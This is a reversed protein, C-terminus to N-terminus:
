KPDGLGNLQKVAGAHNPQKKLLKKYSQRADEKDGSLELSYALNFLADNYDPNLNLSKQFCKIAEQYDGYYVLNLYGLNYWANANEAKSIIQLYNKEALEIRDTQQYYMALIYQAHTNNTDLEFANLYYQEALAKGQAQNLNGLAIWADFFDPSLNVAQQYNYLSATTDKQELKIMAKLFYAEHLIPDVDIARDIYSLSKAYERYILFLRSLNILANTNKPDIKEARFLIERSDVFREKAMYIDSLTIWIDADTSDIQLAVNVDAFALNNEGALLFFKARENHLQADKPHQKILINLSDFADLPSTEEQTIAKDQQQALDNECSWFGFISLGLLFILFKHKM